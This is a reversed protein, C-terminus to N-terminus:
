GKLQIVFTLAAFFVTFMTGMMIGIRLTLRQESAQMDVKTDAKLIQIESKLSDLGEKLNTKTALHHFSLESALMILTEAQEKTFGVNELKKAYTLTDIM